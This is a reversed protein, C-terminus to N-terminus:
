AKSIEPILGVITQSDAVTEVRITITSYDDINVDIDNDFGTLTDGDAVINVDGILNDKDGYIEIHAYWDNVKNTYADKEEDYLFTQESILGDYPYLAGIKFKLHYDNDKLEQPINYECMVFAPNDGGLAFTRLDAVIGKEGETIQGFYPRSGEPFLDDKTFEHFDLGYKSYGNPNSEYDVEQWNSMDLLSEDIEAAVESSDSNVNTVPEDPTNVNSQAKTVTGVSSEVAAPQNVPTAKPQSAKGYAAGGIAGVVAVAAATAVAKVSRAIIGETNPSFLDSLFAKIKNKIGSKIESKVEKSIEEKAKQKLSKKEEKATGEFDINFVLEHEDFEKNLCAKSILQTVKQIKEDDLKGANKINISICSETIQAVDEQDSKEAPANEKANEATTASVTESNAQETTDEAPVTEEKAEEKTDEPQEKVEQSRGCYPCFKAGEKIQIGCHICVNEDLQQTNQNEEM